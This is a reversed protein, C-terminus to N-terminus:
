KYIVEKFIIFYSIIGMVAFGAILGIVFGTIFDYNFVVM